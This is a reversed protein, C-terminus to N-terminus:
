IPRDTADPGPRSAPNGDVRDKLDDAKDAVRDAFGSSTARDAAGSSMGAGAGTSSGTTGGTASAGTGSSRPVVVSNRNSSGFGSTGGTAGTAGTGERSTPIGVSADSAGLSGSAGTTSSTGSGSTGRNRRSEFFRSEDYHESAYYDDGSTRAAGGLTGAKDDSGAVPNALADTTAFRGRLSQEYDRTIGADRSYLPYSALDTGSLSNVIVDDGDDRLTATGIPVLAHGKEAGRPTAADAVGSAVSRDVDVDMYRVRMERVSVVLDDVKGLVQGDPTKVTWGRIDPYGDAVEYDDLDSLRRLDTDAGTAGTTGASTSLRADDYRADNLDRDAM